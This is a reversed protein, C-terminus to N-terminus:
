TVPEGNGNALERLDKLREESSRTDLDAPDLPKEPPPPTPQVRLEDLVAGIRSADPIMSCFGLGMGIIQNLVVTPHQGTRQAIALIPQMNQPHIQVQIPQGAPAPTPRPPPWPQNKHM